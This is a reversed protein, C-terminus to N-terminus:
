IISDNQNKIRYDTIEKATESKDHSKTYAEDRKRKNSSLTMTNTFTMSYFYTILM